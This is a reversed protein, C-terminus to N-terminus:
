AKDALYTIMLTQAATDSVVWLNEDDVFPLMCDALGGPFLFAGKTYDAVVDSGGIFFKGTNSFVGQVMIAQPQRVVDTSSPVPFKVPVVGVTLVHQSRKQFYDM